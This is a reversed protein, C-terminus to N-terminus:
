HGFKMHVTGPKSVTPPGVRYLVWVFNVAGAEEEIPGSASGKNWGDLTMKRTPGYPDIGWTKWDDAAVASVKWTGSSDGYAWTGDSKLKLTQTVATGSSASLTTGGGGEDYFLRESYVRWTRVFAANMSGALAGSNTGSEQQVTKQPEEDAGPVPPLPPFDSEAIERPLQPLESENFDSPLEDGGSNRMVLTVIGILALVAIAGGFGWWYYKALNQPPVAIKQSPQKAMNDQM